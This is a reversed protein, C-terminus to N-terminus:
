SGLIVPQLQRGNVAAAISEPLLSLDAIMSAPKGVPDDQRFPVFYISKRNLLDGINRGNAGLADNTSVAILLPRGNRLHAKCAFTVTSDAIGCALKALTNGTCPAVVLVDFLKKPGISEAEPVSCIVDRGTIQELKERFNQACGFRTDTQSAHESMIATLDYKEALREAAPIIRDFTCYSGCLALGIKLKEM